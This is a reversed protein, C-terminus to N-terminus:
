WDTPDVVWEGDVMIKSIANHSNRITISLYFFETNNDGEKFWTTMSKQRWSIEEIKLLRNYDTHAELKACKEM